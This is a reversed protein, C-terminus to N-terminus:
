LGPALRADIPFPEPSGVEHFGPHLPNLLVNWEHPVVALPVLLAVSRRADFWNPSLRQTSAPHPGAQGEPPLDALRAVLAGPIRLAVYADRLLDAHEVHVLTEVLAASSAASVVPRGRLHWRGSRRAPARSPQASVAPRTLRWAAISSAPTAPPM